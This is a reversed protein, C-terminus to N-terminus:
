LNGRIDEMIERICTELDVNVYRRGIGCKKLNEECFDKEDALFRRCMEEYQPHSQQRERDLARSLRLGAETEVYVPIVMHKGFYQRLKEFSVLTGIVLCGGEIRDFQGDDVTAYIWPGCVTQYIRSEIIKGEADLKEMEAARIFYYEKGDIEGDRMPRTTYPIVTGLDPMRRLIERYITDKGTASKGMVCFLKKM